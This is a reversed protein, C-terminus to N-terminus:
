RFNLAIVTIRKFYAVSYYENEIYGPSYSLQKYKSKM